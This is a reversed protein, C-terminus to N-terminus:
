TSELKSKLIEQRIQVTAFDLDYQVISFQELLNKDRGKSTIEKSISGTNVTASDSNRNTMKRVTEQMFFREFAPHFESVLESRAKQMLKERRAETRMNRLVSTMNKGEFTLNATISSDCFNNEGMTTFWNKVLAMKEDDAKVNGAQRQSVKQRKNSETPFLLGHNLTTLEKQYTKLKKMNSYLRRINKNTRLDVVCDSEIYTDKDDDDDAVDDAVVSNKKLVEKDEEQHFKKQDHNKESESSSSSTSSCSSDSVDGDDSDDSTLRYVEEPESTKITTSFM